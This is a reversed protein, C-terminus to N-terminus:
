DDFLLRQLSWESAKVKALNDNSFNSSKLRKHGRSLCEWFGHSIIIIVWFLPYCCFHLQRDLFVLDHFKLLIFLNFAFCTSLKIYYVLIYYLFSVLTIYFIFISSLIKDWNIYYILNILFEILFMKYARHTIQTRTKLFDDSM